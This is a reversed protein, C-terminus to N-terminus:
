HKKLICGLIMRFIVFIYGKLFLFNCNTKSFTKIGVMPNFQNYTKSEGEQRSKDRWTRKRFDIWANAETLNWDHGFSALRVVFDVTKMTRKGSSAIKISKTFANQIESKRAM